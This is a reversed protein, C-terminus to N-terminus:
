IEEKKLEVRRVLPQYAVYLWGLVVVITLMLVRTADLEEAVLLSVVTLLGAAVMKGCRYAFVDTYEKAIFRAEFSLPLYTLDKIGSFISYELTKMSLMALATTWLSTHVTALTIVLCMLIPQIMMMMDLGLFQVLIRLGLFQVLASMFNAVFYFRGVFESRRAQTPLETELLQSYALNILAGICQMLFTVVLLLKLKQNEQFILPLRLKRSCSSCQLFSTFTTTATTATTATSSASSSSSAASSFAKDTNNTQRNYSTSSSNSSHLRHALHIDSSAKRYAIDALGASVLLSGSAILFSLSPSSIASAGAAAIASALSSCGYIPGLSNQHGKLLSVIFSFQQSSLFTVYAQRVVFTCFVVVKRTTTTVDPNIALLVVSILFFSAIGISSILIAARPGHKNLFSRYATVMLYATTAVAVLAPPMFSAGLETILLSTSAARAFEYGGYSICAAAVMWFTPKPISGRPISLTDASM